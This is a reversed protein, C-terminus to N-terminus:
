PGEKPPHMPPLWPQLKERTVPGTDSHLTEVHEIWAMRIDRCVLATLIGVLVSVADADDYLVAFLGVAVGAGFLCALYIGIRARPREVSVRWHLDDPDAPDRDSM